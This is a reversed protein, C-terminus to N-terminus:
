SLFEKILPLATKSGSEGEHVMAAIAVDDTWAVMWAHTKPKAGGGFEATGTKAGTMVGKLGAGSGSTVVATMMQRLQAAENATLPAAKPEPKTGEVLWPITTRGASVSAALGAMAMPSAEVEGQGITNAGKVVPDSTEPVSGFFAPYGVDYDVGIGLSAAAASLDDRDLKPASGIFATNCSTALADQLSMTGVRSAPFDNYNKFTRGHVTITSSCDVPTGASWGKRVLALSTAVKFTSGPAYRGYNAFNNEGAAPSTAMALIAGDSPRVVVMTAVPKVKALVGEAKMQAELDLTLQLPQGGVADKHFLTIDPQPEATSDPAPTANTRTVMLVSHEAKGRLQEDYRRQLGSQGVLDGAWVQGKGNKIQEPTAPGVTGLIARAFSRTPALVGKQRVVAVGSIETAQAPIESQRVTIAPVFAKAGAGKVRATYAKADIKLLAALAKASAEWLTPDLNQKDIGIQFVDREEMLAAGDAGVIPARGPLTRVHRLRSIENLDPHVISPKWVVQWREGLQNLEAQSTFVWANGGVTYTQKLEVTAVGGERYSVPEPRVVPLLGDMGSMITALDKAAASAGPDGLMPVGALKGTSLGKVLADVTSRAPDSAASPSSSASQGQSTSPDPSPARGGTCSSLGVAMALVVALWSSRRLDM